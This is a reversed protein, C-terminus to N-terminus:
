YILKESGSSCIIQRESIVSFCKSSVGLSVSEGLIGGSAMGPVAELSLSVRTGQIGLSM